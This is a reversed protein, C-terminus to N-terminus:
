NIKSVVCLPDEFTLEIGPHVYVSVPCGLRTKIHVKKVPCTRLDLISWDDLLTVVTDGLCFYPQVKIWGGSCVLNDKSLTVCVFQGGDLPSLIWFFIVLFVWCMM